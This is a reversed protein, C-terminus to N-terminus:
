LDVVLLGTKWLEQKAVIRGDPAIVMAGGYAGGHCEPCLHGCVDSGTVYAVMLTTAGVAAARNCYEAEEEREWRAQDYQEASCRVFPYLLYDLQNASVCSLDVDFLDGCILFGMRGLPTDVYNVQNGHGYARPDAQPGHWGCSIRRYKLLLEGGPGYLLASDYVTDAERELVGIGLYIQLEQALLALRGSIPGPVEIGLPLDHPPDDNNILGTLAAEGFLVLDAGRERAERSMAAVIKLNTELGKEVRHVALAVRM